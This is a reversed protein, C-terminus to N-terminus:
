KSNEWGYTWVADPLSNFLNKLKKIEIKNRLIKIVKRDRALKFEGRKEDSASNLRDIFLQEKSIVKLKFNKYKVEEKNPIVIERVYQSTCLDFTTKDKELTVFKYDEKGSEEDTKKWSNKTFELEIHEIAKKSPLFVDIDPSSEIGTHLESAFGAFIAYNKQKDLFSLIEQMENTFVM